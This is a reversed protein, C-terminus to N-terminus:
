EKMFETEREKFFKNVEESPTLLASIDVKLAYAIEYFVQITPQKLNNCIRSIYNETKNIMAALEKQAINREVLVMKLRNFKVPGQKNRKEAM